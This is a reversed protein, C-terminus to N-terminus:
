VQVMHVLTVHPGLVGLAALHEVPRRGARQLFAHVDAEVPSLHMALRLGYARALDSAGM